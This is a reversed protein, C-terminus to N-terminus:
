VEHRAEAMRALDGPYRRKGMVFLVASALAAFPILQLAMHLGMRDALMGTIIPGAALGLLNNALAWLAMATAHISPPTLDAVMAGTPGCVGSALFMGSGILVLQLVGPPLRVAV